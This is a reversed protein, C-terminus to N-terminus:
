HRYKRTPQDNPAKPIEQYLTQLINKTGRNSDQDPLGSIFLSTDSMILKMLM